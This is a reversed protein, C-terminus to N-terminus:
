AFGGGVEVAQVGGVDDTKCGTSWWTGGNGRAAGM